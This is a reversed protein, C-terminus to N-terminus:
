LFGAVREHRNGHEARDLAEVDRDRAADTEVFRPSAAESLAVMRVNMANRKASTRQLPPANAWDFGSAFAGAAGLSGAPTVLTAVTSPMVSYRRALPNRNRSNGSRDLGVMVTFM